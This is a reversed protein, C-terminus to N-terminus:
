TPVFTARSSTLLFANGTQPRHGSDALKEGLESTSLVSVKIQVNSFARTASDDRQHAEATAAENLSDVARLHLPTAGALAAWALLSSLNSVM